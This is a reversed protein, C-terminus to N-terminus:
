WHCLTATDSESGMEPAESGTTDPGDRRQSTEGSQPLTNLVAEGMRGVVNRQCPQCVVALLRQILEKVCEECFSKQVNVHQVQNPQCIVLRGDDHPYGRPRSAVAMDCRFVPGVKRHGCELITIITHCM